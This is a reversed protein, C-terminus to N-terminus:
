NGSWQYDYGAPPDYQIAVAWVGPQVPSPNWFIKVYSVHGDVFGVVNKADDFFCRAKQALIIFVAQTIEEAQLPERVQRLAASYVLGIRRRVLEEFAAESHCAYERLLAMDDM